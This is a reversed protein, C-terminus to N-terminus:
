KSYIGALKLEDSLGNKVFSAITLGDPMKIEGGRCSLEKIETTVEGINIKNTASGYLDRLEVVNGASASYRPTIPMACGEILLLCIASLLVFHLRM